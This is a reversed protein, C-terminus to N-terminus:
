IEPFYGCNKLDDDPHLQNKNRSEYPNKEAIDLKVISVRSQQTSRVHNFPLCFFFVPLEFFAQYLVSYILILKGRVRRMQM